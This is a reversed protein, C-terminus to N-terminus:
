ALSCEVQRYAQDHPTRRIATLDDNWNQSIGKPPPAILDAGFNDSQLALVADLETEHCLRQFTPILRASWSPPLRQGSQGSLIRLLSCLEFAPSLAFRSLSLGDSTVELRIM